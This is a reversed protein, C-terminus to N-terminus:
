QGRPDLVIMRARHQLWRWGFHIVQERQKLGLSMVLHLFLGLLRVKTRSIGSVHTVMPLVPFPATDLVRRDFALPGSAGPPPKLALTNPLLLAEKYNVIITAV